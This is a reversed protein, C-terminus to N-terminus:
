PGVWVVYSLSADAYNATVQWCGETPVDILVLMAPVGARVANTANDLKVQGTGDLQKATVILSPKLEHHPDYGERWWFLKDRFVAKPLFQQTTRWHGNLPPRTWLKSTGYWNGTDGWAEPRLYEASPSFRQSDVRTVPCDQPITQAPTQALAAIAALVILVLTLRVSAM